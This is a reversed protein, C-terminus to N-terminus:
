RIASSVPIAKHSRLFDDFQFQRRGQILAFAVLIMQMPGPFFRFSKERELLTPLPFQSVFLNPNQILQQKSESSQLIGNTRTQQRGCQLQHLFPLFSGREQIFQITRFLNPNQRRDFFPLKQPFETILRRVFVWTLRFKDSFVQRAEKVMDRVKLCDMGLNCSPAPFTCM